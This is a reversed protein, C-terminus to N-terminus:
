GNDVSVSEVGILGISVRRKRGDVCETALEAHGALSKVSVYDNGVKLGVSALGYMRKWTEVGLVRGM